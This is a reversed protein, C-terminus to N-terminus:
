NLVPYPYSGHLCYVYSGTTEIM